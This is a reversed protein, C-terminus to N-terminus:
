VVPLSAPSPGTYCVPFEKWARGEILSGGKGEPDVSNLQELAEKNSNTMKLAQRYIPNNKPKGWQKWFFPIGYLPHNNFIEQIPEPVSVESM